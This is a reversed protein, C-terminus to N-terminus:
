QLEPSLHKTMKSMLRQNCLQNACKPMVKSSHSFEFYVTADCCTSILASAGTTLLIYVNAHPKALSNQYTLKLGLYYNQQIFQFLCFRKLDSIWGDIKM